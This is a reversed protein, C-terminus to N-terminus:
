DVAKALSEPSTGQVVLDEQSLVSPMLRSAVSVGFAVTLICNYRSSQKGRGAIVSSNIDTRVPSAHRKPSATWCTKPALM